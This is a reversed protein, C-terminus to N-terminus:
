RIKPQGDHVTINGDTVPVPPLVPLFCGPQGPAPRIAGAFSFRLLDPLAGGPEGNDVAHMVIIQGENAEPKTGIATAIAQNATVILCTVEAKIRPQGEIQFSIHGKPDEGLPGGHASITFQTEPLSHVGAGTVFDQPPGPSNGESHSAFGIGPALVLALLALVPTALSTLIQRKAHM